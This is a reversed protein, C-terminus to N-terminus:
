NKKRGSIIWKLVMGEYFITGVTVTASLFTAISLVKILNKM